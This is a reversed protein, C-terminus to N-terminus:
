KISTAATYVFAQTYSPHNTKSTPRTSRHTPHRSRHHYSRPATPTCELSRLRLRLDIGHCRGRRCLSAIRKSAQLKSFM